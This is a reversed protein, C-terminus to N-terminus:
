IIPLVDLPHLNEILSSEITFHVSNTYIGALLIFWTNVGVTQRLFTQPIVANDLYDPFIVDIVNRFTASQYILDTIRNILM